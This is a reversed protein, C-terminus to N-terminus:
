LFGETGEGVGGDALDAPTTSVPGAGSAVDTWRPAPACRHPRARTRLFLPLAPEAFACPANLTSAAGAPPDYPQQDCGAASAAATAPVPRERGHAVRGPESRSLFM